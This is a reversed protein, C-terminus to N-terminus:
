CSDCKPVAEIVSGVFGVVGLCVWTLSGILLLLWTANRM